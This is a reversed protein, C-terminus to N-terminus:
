KNHHNRQVFVSRFGAAKNLHNSLSDDSSSNLNESSRRKQQQQQLRRQTRLPPPPPPNPNSITTTTPIICTKLSTSISTTPNSDSDDSLDLLRASLPRQHRKLHSDLIPPCPVHMSSAYSSVSSARSSRTSSSSSLVNPVSTSLLLHTPLSVSSQSPIVDNSIINFFKLKAESFTSFDSQNLEHLNNGSPCAAFCTQAALKRSVDTWDTTTGIVPSSKTRLRSALNNSDNDNDHNKDTEVTRLMCSKHHPLHSSGSFLQARREM